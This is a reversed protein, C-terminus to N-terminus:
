RRQGRPRRAAFRSRVVNGIFEDSFRWNVALDELHKLFAEQSEVQASAAILDDNTGRALKEMAALEQAQREVKAALVDRELGLRLAKERQGEERELEQELREVKARLELVLRTAAEDARRLEEVHSRTPREELERELESMHSRLSALTTDFRERRERRAPEVWPVGIDSRFTRLREWLETMPPTLGGRWWSAGGTRSAQTHSV